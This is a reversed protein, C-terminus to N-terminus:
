RRVMAKYENIAWGLNQDAAKRMWKTAEEFDQKVGKGDRYARGLRAQLERSGSEALPRAIMIAEDLSEPTNIRYLIDFLEWDAWGIKHERAKRMWEAAKSLDQEVGRGDRYARGMRGMANGDGLDSFATAVSIMEKLSEPTNIRWLIDFLENKAWGLNQDAAKRMWEAAKLLDREVGKGDRYCRGLEAFAQVENQEILQEILDIGSKDGKSLLLRSRQLTNRVSLSEKFRIRYMDLLSSAYLVDLDKRLNDKNEHGDIITCIAKYAYRYYEEVYHTGSPGWRHYYDSMLNDPSRIYYCGTEELIRREYEMESLTYYDNHSRDVVHGESSIEMPSEHVSVLIIKDAYRKIIFSIFSTLLDPIIGLWDINSDFQASPITKCITNLKIPAFGGGTIYEFAEGGASVRRVGYSICISDIILWDSGSESLSKLINKNMDACICEMQFRSLKRNGAIIDDHTIDPLVHSTFQLLPNCQQYYAKVEFGEDSGGISLSDRSVCSGLIDVKTKNM